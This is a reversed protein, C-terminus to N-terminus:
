VSKVRGAL